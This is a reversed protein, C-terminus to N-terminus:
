ESGLCYVYVELEDITVTGESQAETPILRVTLENDGNIILPERMGRPVDIIYLYFPALEVGQWENQGTKQFRRTIQKQPVRTGNLWLELSEKQTLDVAKFLLTARLKPNSLDESVRFRQSGQVAPETRDLVIREDKWTFPSTVDAPDASLDDGFTPARLNDRKPWLPYFLYHRDGQSVTQPDRVERFYGLAKPWMWAFTLWRHPDPYRDTRRQWHAQYNYFQVGDAGHAYFNQAAARYQALTVMRVRGGSSFPFLAPYIKCDTGETLNVFEEVKINTDLHLFDSPVVYDVLGEKIWIALDFGLYDCEELTQPVRVGLPLRSRGRRQAAADLLQRTKRTFDTLLHANKEGEGPEFMHCWRMWDFELGDVDHSVLLEEVYALVKERVPEYAYNVGPGGGRGKLHWEPHETIFRGVAPGSHRDNMRLTAIYEMGHHHCRNVLIDIPDYGAQCLLEYARCSSWTFVEPIVKSPPTALFRVFTVQSLTDVGVDALEDVSQEFIAKIEEPDTTGHCFEVFMMEEDFNVLIRRENNPFEAASMCTARGLLSGAILLSVFTCRMRTMLHLM